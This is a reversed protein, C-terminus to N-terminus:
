KELLQQRQRHLKALEDAPIRSNVGLVALMYAIKASNEVTELRMFAEMLTSGVTLSGHRQLVLADYNTIVTRIAEANEPSSPTAYPTVPIKGLFVTVEPILDDAIPINAISLTIAHPPHAHVVACIDPRQKYAELHMPLESTPRLDVNNANPEDVREGAMNVTIIQTPRLFGKHLGSPTILM